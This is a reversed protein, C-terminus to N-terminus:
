QRKQWYINQRFKQNGEFPDPSFNQNYMNFFAGDRADQESITTFNGKLFRRIYEEGFRLVRFYREQEYLFERDQEYFCALLVNNEYDSIDIPSAGARSRVVNIDQMALDPKGLKARAEARMLYAHALRYVIIDQDIDIYDGYTEGSSAVEFKAFRFKYPIVYNGVLGDVELMETTPDDLHYFYSNRREDNFDNFLENVFGPSMGLEGEDIIEDIEIDERVPWFVNSKATLSHFTGPEGKIEFGRYLIKFICANGGDKLTHNCLEEVNSDMFYESSNIIDTCADEAMILLEEENISSKRDEPAFWKTGVQWLCLETLLARAAGKSAVMKDLRNQGNRDFCQSYEPLYKIAENALEITYDIAECMPSKEVATFIVDDRVIVIDGWVQIIMKYAFAKYFAIVGRYYNYRDESLPILEIAEKLINAEAIVKYIEMNQERYGSNDALEQAEQYDGGDIKDTLYGRVEPKTPQWCWWFRCIRAMSNVASDFEREDNMGNRFTATNEPQVNLTSDCSFVIIGMLVLILLKRVM